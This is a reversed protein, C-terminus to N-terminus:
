GAREPAAGHVPARGQRRRPVLWAALAGAIAGGVSLWFARVFGNEAPVQTGGIHHAVLLVAAAQAGVVGGVTRVVNNMGTAVATETPAVADVILRPMSAFAFAIGWGCLTFSLATELPTEHRLAIGASGAALLLMGAILPGRAGARRGVVGAVPGGLIIALSTPLTWLGAETVSTGFGYDALDRLPPPLQSPLQYFTPLLVWTAYLAFGSLLATLNTFLVPRRALMRLDVMPEPVRAEVVGWAAFLLAAAGFLGLIEASSWGLPQGETLAVLLATLGASLLLAGWVDVRSPIRVPSEPIFRWVLLLAALGIGASLVFLWRWSAHDVILGAGVIGLGGGVGLTSSVIGMAISWRERPFEDRIIAYSLPFVAGGVGQVARFLVLSGINWALAAGISGVLFVGLSLVMLRVKGHQDGLRGIIPTAVSGTLLYATVTWTTWGTSTHLKEQLIPLAPILLTQMLAFALSSTVLGALTLGTGRAPAPVSM